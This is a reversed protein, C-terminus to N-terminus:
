GEVQQSLWQAAEAALQVMEGESATARSLRALLHSLATSDLAPNHAALAAVFEADPLTPNLRYRYGLARKLRDHYDQLVAARHGARRSLNAVATIYEIPARRSIERPLPVPRGFPRGQLLLALFVVVGAFLLANGAPTRRLWNGPGLVENAAQPGRVGHHWEDFWVMGREGAASVVNLVLDPNGPEKLGTNTFPQASAVLLVRGNGQAFSILQPRDAQAVHVVIDQRESTFGAQWRLDAPTTFPPSVFLPTQLAAPADPDTMQFSLNIDYHAMALAAGFGDGALVLMGGAEVWDDLTAWEDATIGPLPELMLVLRTTPPVAFAAATYDSVTYGLSALWLRLANAGDPETSFSALPPPTEARTQQILAIAMMIALLLFLALALWSDRSLHKM